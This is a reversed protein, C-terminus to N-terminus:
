DEKHLTEALAIEARGLYKNWTTGTLEAFLEQFGPKDTTNMYIEVLREGLGNCPETEDQIDQLVTDMDRVKGTLKSAEQQWQYLRALKRMDVPDYNKNM